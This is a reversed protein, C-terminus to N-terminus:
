ISSPSAVLERRSAVGSSRLISICAAARLRGHIPEAFVLMRRSRPNTGFDAPAGQGGRLGDQEPGELSEGLEQRDGTGRMQCQRRPREAKAIRPEGEVHGEVQSRQDRDDHRVAAGPKLDKM